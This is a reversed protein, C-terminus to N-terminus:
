SLNDILKLLAPIAVVSVHVIWVLSVCCCETVMYPVEFIFVDVEKNFPLDQCKCFRKGRVGHDASEAKFFYPLYHEISFVRCEVSSRFKVIIALM